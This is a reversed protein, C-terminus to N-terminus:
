CTGQCASMSSPMYRVIALHEHTHGLSKEIIIIRLQNVKLHFAFIIVYSVAFMEHNEVDFDLKPLNQLISM